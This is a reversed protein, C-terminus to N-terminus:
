GARAYRGFRWAAHVRGQAVRADGGGWAKMVHAAEEEPARM